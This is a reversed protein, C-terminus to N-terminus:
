LREEDAQEEQEMLRSHLANKDDSDDYDIYAYGCTIAPHFLNRPAREHRLLEALLVSYVLLVVNYVIASLVFWVFEFTSSTQVWVTRSGGIWSLVLVVAALLMPSNIAISSWILGLSVRRVLSVETARANSTVDQRHIPAACTRTGLPLYVSYIGVLQLLPTAPQFFLVLFWWDFGGAGYFFTCYLAVCVLQNERTLLHSIPERPGLRCRVLFWLVVFPAFDIVGMLLAFAKSDWFSSAMVTTYEDLILRISFATAPPPPPAQSTLSSRLPPHDDDDDNNSTPERESEAPPKTRPAKPM